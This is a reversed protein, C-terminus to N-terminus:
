KIGKLSAMALSAQGSGAESKTKMDQFESDLTDIRTNTDILDQQLSELTPTMHERILQNGNSVIVFFLLLAGVLLILKRM